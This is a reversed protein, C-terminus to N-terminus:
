TSYSVNLNNKDFMGCEFMVVDYTGLVINCTM